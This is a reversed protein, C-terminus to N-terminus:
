SLLRRELQEILPKSEEYHGRARLFAARVGEDRRAALLALHLIEHELGRDPPREFARALQAALSHVLPELTDRELFPRLMEDAKEFLRYDVIVRVETLLRREKPTLGGEGRELAGLCARFLEEYSALAKEPERAVRHVEALVRLVPISRPAQRLASRVVALAAPVEDPLLLRARACAIHVDDPVLANLAELARRRSALAAERGRPRNAMESLLRWLMGVAETTEGGRAREEALDIRREDDTM